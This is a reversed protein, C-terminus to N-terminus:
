PARTFLQPLAILWYSFPGPLQAKGSTIVPGRMPFRVGHAIDMGIAYDRAEDGTFRATEVLALRVAAAVAFIAAGTLFARRPWFTIVGGVSTVRPRGYVIPEGWM